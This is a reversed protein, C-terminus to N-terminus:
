ESCLVRLLIKNALYVSESLVYRILSMEVPFIRCLLCKVKRQASDEEVMMMVTMM